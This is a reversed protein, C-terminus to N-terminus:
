KYEELAKRPDALAETLRQRAIKFYNPDKEIGIFRRGQAHAAIGTSGSGMTFDLVLDGPDSYTRILFELLDTPKQCPHLRGKGSPNGFHLDSFIFGIEKQFYNGNDKIKDGHLNAGKNKRSQKIPKVLPTLDLNFKPLSRYFVLINEHRKMPMRRAHQFNSAKTKIWTYAYRFNEINSRGLIFTFPESGFLIVAANDKCVRNLEPWLAALDIPTDWKCETTGYPPDTLVLDVTKAPLTKIIELCDGLNLNVEGNSM